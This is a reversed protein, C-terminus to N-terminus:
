SKWASRLGDIYDERARRAKARPDRWAEIIQRAFGDETLGPSALAGHLFRLFDAAAGVVRGQSNKAATIRGGASEFIALAGCVLAHRNVSLPRGDEKRRALGHHRRYAAQLEPLARQHEILGQLALRHDVTLVVKGAAQLHDFFQSDLSGWRPSTVVRKRPM